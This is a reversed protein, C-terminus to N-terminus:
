NMTMKTFVEKFNNRYGNQMYAEPLKTRLSERENKGTIHVNDIPDFNEHRNTEYMHLIDKVIKDCYLKNEKFEVIGNADYFKQFVFNYSAKDKSLPEGTPTAFVITDAVFTNGTFHVNSCLISNITQKGQDIFLNNRVTIGNAMHNHVPALSNVALNNEMLCNRSLEDFYYTWGVITNSKRFLAANNRYITSDGGYCYIAGGDKLELKFNYILNYEALSNKGLGNIAAYPINYLECHSVLNNEGAGIIGVAGFYLEGLDHIGCRKLQIYSGQIDIGGAGTNFFEGDSITIFSGKVKIAWGAVNEVIIKNLTLHNVSDAEIAGKIESTGYGTNSMPAGACSIKLNDLTINRAGKDFVFLQNKTPILAEIDSINEYPFPWYYVKEATRDLYWQGPHKM